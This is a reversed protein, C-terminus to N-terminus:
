KEINTLASESIQGKGETTPMAAQENNEEHAVAKTKANMNSETQNSKQPPENNQVTKNCQEASVVSAENKQGNEITISMDPNATDETVPLQTGKAEGNRDTGIMTSEDQNTSDNLESVKSAAAKASSNQQQPSAARSDARSNSHSGKKLETDRKKESARQKVDVAPVATNSHLNKMSAALGRSSGLSGAKPTSSVHKRTVGAIRSSPTSRGDAMPKEASKNAGSPKATKSDKANSQPELVFSKSLANRTTVPSGKLSRSNVKGLAVESQNRTLGGRKSSTLDQSGAKAKAMVGSGARSPASKKVPESEKVVTDVIKYASVKAFDKSSGIRTLGKKVSYHTRCAKGERREAKRRLGEEFVNGAARMGDMSGEWQEFLTHHEVDAKEMAILKTELRETLLRELLQEKTEPIKPSPQQADSDENSSLEHEAQEEEIHNM